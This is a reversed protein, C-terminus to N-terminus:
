KRDLLCAKTNKKTQKNKQKNFTNQKGKGLHIEIM